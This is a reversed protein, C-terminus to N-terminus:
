LARENEHAHPEILMPKYTMPGFPTEVTPRIRLGVGKPISGNAGAFALALDLMDTASKEDSFYKYMNLSLRLPITQAEGAPLTIRDNLTGSITERGDLMLTWDMSVLTAAIQNILPNETKLHVTLDLPLEQRSFALTARAVDFMNLDDVRRVHMLDIGAVRVSSVHDLTFKVSSLEMAKQMTACSSLLLVAAMSL